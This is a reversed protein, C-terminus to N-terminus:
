VVMVSVSVSWPWAWRGPGHRADYLHQAQQVDGVAEAPQDRLWWAFDAGWPLGSLVSRRFMEGMVGGEALLGSARYGADVAKM